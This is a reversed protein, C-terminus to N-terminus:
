QLWGRRFAVAVAETSRNVHLVTLITRIWNKATAVSVNWSAAIESADQGEAIQGLVFLRKSDLPCPFVRVGALWGAQDKALKGDVLDSATKAFGRM